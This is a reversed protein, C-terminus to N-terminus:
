DVVAEGSRALIEDVSEEPSLASTDLWLGVAPTAAVHAGNETPTYSGRYAVKCTRHRREEHRADLVAVTPRLVVLHRPRARLSALWRTVDPGHSNDQVV